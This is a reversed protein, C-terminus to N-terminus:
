QEEEHLRVRECFTRFRVEWNAWKEKLRAEEEEYHRAENQLRARAKREEKHLRTEEPPQIGRAIWTRRCTPHYAEWQSLDAPDNEEAYKFFEREEELTLERFQVFM